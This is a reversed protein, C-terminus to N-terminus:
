SSGCGATRPCRYTSSGATRLLFRRDVLARRVDAPDDHVLAIRANVEAETLSEGPHFLEALAAYLEEILAPETPTRTVRGWDVFPALRPHDAVLAHLPSDAVWDHLIRHLQDRALSLGDQTRILIGLSELRSVTTWFEKISLGSARRADDAPVSAGPRSPLQTVIGASAPRCLEHVLQAAQHGTHVNWSTIM